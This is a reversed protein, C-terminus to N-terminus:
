KTTVALSTLVNNLANDPFAYEENRSMAVVHVAILFGSNATTM